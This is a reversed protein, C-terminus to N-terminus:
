IWLLSRGIGYMVTVRVQTYRCFGRKTYRPSATCRHESYNEGVKM